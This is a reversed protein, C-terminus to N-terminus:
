LYKYTSFSLFCYSLYQLTRTFLFGTEVKAFVPELFLM